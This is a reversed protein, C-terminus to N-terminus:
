AHALMLNQMKHIVYKHALFNKQVLWPVGVVVLGAVGSDVARHCVIYYGLKLLTTVNNNSKNDPPSNLTAVMQQFLVQFELLNKNDTAEVFRNGLPHHAWCSYWLGHGITYLTHYKAKILAYICTVLSM